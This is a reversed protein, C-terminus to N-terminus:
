AFAKNSPLMLGSHAAPVGTGNSGAVAGTTGFEVVSSLGALQVPMDFSPNFQPFEIVEGQTSSNSVPVPLPAFPFSSGLAPGPLSSPHCPVPTNKTSPSKGLLELRDPM